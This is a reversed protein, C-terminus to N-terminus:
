SGPLLKSIIRRAFRAVRVVTQNKRASFEGMWFHNQLGFIIKSGARIFFTTSRLLLL